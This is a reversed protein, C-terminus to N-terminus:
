QNNPHKNKKNKKEEKEKALKKMEARAITILKYMSMVFALGILGVTFKSGTNFKKDLWMGLIVAALVPGFIWGNLNAFFIISPRWWPEAIPDKKEM